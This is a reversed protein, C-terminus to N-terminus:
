FGLSEGVLVVTIRAKVMSNEIIAIQSCIREPPACNEDDCFGTRACPTDVGFRISNFLAAINKIRRMGDEVSQVLKNMGVMLIVKEPGFMIAAM